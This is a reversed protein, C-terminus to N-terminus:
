MEARGAAGTEMAELAYVGSSGDGQAGPKGDTNRCKEGLRSWDGDCPRWLHLINTDYGVGHVYDSEAPHLQVAMEDDGWFFQKVECMQGWTPCPQEQERKSGTPSVSVHEWGDEDASWCCLVVQGHLALECMEAGEIIRGRRTYRSSGVIQSRPKM